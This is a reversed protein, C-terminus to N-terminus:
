IIKAEFGIDDLVEVAKAADKEDGDLEVTKSELVVKFNLKEEDLAKTIRAVCHECSMDPVNITTM